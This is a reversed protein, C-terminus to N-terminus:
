LDIAVLKKRTYGTYHCPSSSVGLAHKVGKEDQWSKSKWNAMGVATDLVKKFRPQDSLLKRRFEVPDIAAAHAM